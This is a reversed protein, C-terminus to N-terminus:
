KLGLKNPFIVINDVRKNEKRTNINQFKTDMGNMFQEHAAMNFAKQIHQVM